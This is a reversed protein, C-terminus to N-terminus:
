RKASSLDDVEFVIIHGSAKLAKHAIETCLEDDEVIGVKAKKPSM